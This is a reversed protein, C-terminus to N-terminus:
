VIFFHFLPLFINLFHMGSSFRGLFCTRTQDAHYGNVLTPIDVVVMDGTKIKRLSPGAPVSPSLGTGTVSYVVGSFQKLNPGSAIPGRSMFFDPLRMFLTGEHGALRHANEVAAALELETIGDRLAASVAKHGSHVARCAKKIQEIEYTIKTMRQELIMPSVDSFEWGRFIKNYELYQKVPMVDLEMGVKRNKLRSCTKEYVAEIKREEQIHESM